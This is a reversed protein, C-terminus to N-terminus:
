GVPQTLAVKDGWLCHGPDTNQADAIDLCVQVAAPIGTKGAVTKRKQANSDDVDLNRTQLLKQGYAAIAATTPADYTPSGTFVVNTIQIDITGDANTLAKTIADKMKQQYDNNLDPAPADGTSSASGLPDFSAFVSSLAARIGPDVRRAIFTGFRPNDSDIKKGQDTVKYNAWQEPATGEIVKWEVKLPICAGRQAAITVNTCSGGDDPFIQGTADWDEVQEWPKTWHVGAGTTKGTPKSFSTVIGVNKTPVKNYSAGVLFLVGIVLFIAAGARVGRRPKYTQGNKLRSVKPNLWSAAFIMVALVGFVIATIFM